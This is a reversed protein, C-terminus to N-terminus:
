FWFSAKGLAQIVAHKGDPIKFCDGEGYIYDESDGDMTIWLKGSTVFIKQAKKLSFVQKEDLEISKAEKMLTTNKM